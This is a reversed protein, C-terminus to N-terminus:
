SMRRVDIQYTNAYKRGDYLAIWSKQTEEDLIVDNQNVEPFPRQYLVVVRMDQIQVEAKAEQRKLSNHGYLRFSAPVNQYITDTDSVTVGGAGDSAFVQRQVSIATEPIM